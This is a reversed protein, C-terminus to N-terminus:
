LPPIVPSGLGYGSALDRTASSWQQSNPEEKLHSWFFFVFVFVQLSKLLFTISMIKFPENQGNLTAMSAM